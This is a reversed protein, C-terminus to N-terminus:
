RNKKSSNCQLCVARLQGHDGGASLPVVHDATTAPRRCDGDCVGCGPCQCVGRAAALVARRNEQYIADSYRRAKARLCAACKGGRTTWGGCRRWNICRTRV